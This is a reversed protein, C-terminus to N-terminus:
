FFTNLSRKRFISPNVQQVSHNSRLKDLAMLLMNQPTHKKISATVLYCGVKSNILDIFLDLDIGFTREFLKTSESEEWECAEFRPVWNREWENMVPIRARKVPWKKVVTTEDVIETHM